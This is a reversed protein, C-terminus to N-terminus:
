LISCVQKQRQSYKYYSVFTAIHEVIERPLGNIGIIGNKSLTAQPSLLGLHCILLPGIHTSDYKKALALDEYTPQIHNSLLVEVIHKSNDKIANLLMDRTPNHLANQLCLVSDQLLSIVPRKDHMTDACALSLPTQGDYNKLTIAANYALLYKVITTRGYQVAYHLPTFGYTDQIDIKAKRKLLLLLLDEYGYYAAWHLATFGQEDCENIDVGNKLSYKVNEISCKKVACFFQEEDADFAYSASFFMGQMARDYSVICLCCLIISISTKIM